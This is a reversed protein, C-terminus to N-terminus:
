GSVGARGVLSRTECNGVDRYPNKEGGSAVEVGSEENDEEEDEGDGDDDERGTSGNVDGKEDDGTLEHVGGSLWGDGGGGRGLAM